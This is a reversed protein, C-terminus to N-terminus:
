KYNMITKTQKDLLNKENPRTSTHYKKHDQYCVWQQVGYNKTNPERQLGIAETMQIMFLKKQGPYKASKASPLVRSLM